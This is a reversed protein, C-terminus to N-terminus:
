LDIIKRKAFDTDYADIEMLVMRDDQIEVIQYRKSKHLPTMDTFDSYFPSSHIM